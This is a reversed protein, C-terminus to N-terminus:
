NIKLYMKPFITNWEDETNEATIEIMVEQVGPDQDEDITGEREAQRVRDVNETGQLHIDGELLHHGLHEIIDELHLINDGEVLLHVHDEQLHGLDQDVLHHNLDEITVWRIEIKISM